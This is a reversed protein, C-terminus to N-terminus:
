GDLPYTITEWVVHCWRLLSIKNSGRDSGWIEFESWWIKSFDMYINLLFCFVPLSTWTVSKVLKMSYPWRQLASVWWRSLFNGGKTCSFTVEVMNV